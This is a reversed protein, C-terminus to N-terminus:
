MWGVLWLPMWKARCVSDIHAYQILSNMHFIMRKNFPLVVIVISELPICEINQQPLKLKKKINLTCSRNSNLILIPMAIVTKDMIKNFIIRMFCDWVM